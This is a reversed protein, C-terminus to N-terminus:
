GSVIAQYQNSIQWTNQGIRFPRGINRCIVGSFYVGNSIFSRPLNQFVLGSINMAEKSSADESQVRIFFDIEGYACGELSPVQEMDVRINPYEFGTGQWDTERVEIVGESNTVLSTIASISKIKDIIGEQITDNRLM